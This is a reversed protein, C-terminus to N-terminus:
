RPLCLSGAGTGGSSATGYFKGDPAQILPATPFEGDTGNFSHLTTLVGAPTIQFITGCGSPSNCTNAGGYVTTGYFNGDTGQVLAADPGKGDTGDFSHLTTLTQAASAIVTAVYLASLIAVRKLLPTSIADFSEM